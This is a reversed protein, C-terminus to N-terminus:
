GVGPTVEYETLCRGAPACQAIASVSAGTASGPGIVFEYPVNDRTAQEVMAFLDTQDSVDWGFTAARGNLINLTDRFTNAGPAPALIRKVAGDETEFTMESVTIRAGGPGGYITLYYELGESNPGITLAGDDPLGIASADVVEGSLDIRVMRTQEMYEIGTETFVSWNKDTVQGETPAKPGEGVGSATAVVAVVIAAIILASLIVAPIWSLWPNRRRDMESSSM